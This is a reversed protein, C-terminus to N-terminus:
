PCALILKIKKDPDAVFVNRVTQNDAPTRAKPDGSTSAPLMADLKAVTYDADAIVPYNPAQGQTGRHRGGM